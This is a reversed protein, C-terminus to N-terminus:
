RSAEDIAKNVRYARQSLLGGAKQAMGTGLTHSTPSQSLKLSASSKRADQQARTQFADLSCM